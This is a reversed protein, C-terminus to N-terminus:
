RLTWPRFYDLMIMRAGLERRVRSSNTLWGFTFGRDLPRFFNDQHSPLVIRPRLRQVTAALRARSDPVAVGIIALDVPAANRPPLVAPTGGSDVYIRQGGMEILFALPEGCVWDRERRPAPPPTRLTGPSPILGFVRDHSAALVRVRCGAVTRVDGPLVPLCRGREVGAAQALCVSTLSAILRAGTSRMIEPADLLHDIHGHTVLVADAKRPLRALGAAVRQPSSAIRLNLAAVPLGTRTFYPDILLTCGRSELLYGNTGLYTVRVGATPAREAFATPLLLALYLLVTKIV